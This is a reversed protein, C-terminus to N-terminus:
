VCLYGRDDTGYLISATRSIYIRGSRDMLELGYLNLPSVGGAHHDNMQLLLITDLTRAEGIAARIISIRNANQSLFHSTHAHPGEGLGHTEAVRLAIGRKGIDYPILPTFHPIYPCSM